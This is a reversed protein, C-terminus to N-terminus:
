SAGLASVRSELADLRGLIQSMTDSGAAMTTNRGHLYGSMLGALARRGAAPDAGAARLLSGATSETGDLLGLVLHECGLYNHGLETATETAAALTLWLSRTLGTLAGAPAEATGLAPEGDSPDAQALAAALDDTDVDLARLLRVGLNGGQSLIGGLVAVTGVPAGGARARALALAETLRATMLGELGASLQPYAAPDFDPERILTIARRARNVKSVATALAQQCVPSVPVGAEKVAAALEDPLYVNIKPM